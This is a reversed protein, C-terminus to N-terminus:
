RTLLSPRRAQGSSASRGGLEDLFKQEERREERRHVGLLKDRYHNMADHDRRTLLLAQWAKEVRQEAARLEAQAQMRRGQLAGAYANTHALALASTRAVLQERIFTWCSELELEVAQLRGAVEQCARVTVAYQRRAEREKQERLVRVSELPFRFRKM